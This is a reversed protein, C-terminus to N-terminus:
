ANDPAGAEAQPQAAEVNTEGAVAEVSAAPEVPASEPMAPGSQRAYRARRHEERSTMPVAELRTIDIVRLEPVQVTMERILDENIRVQREFEKVIEGASRFLM